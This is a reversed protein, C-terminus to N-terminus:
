AAVKFTLKFFYVPIKEVEAQKSEQLFVDSFKRSNKLNDVYAVVEANSFAYGEISLTGGSLTLSQLWVGNPLDKSIEDLMMAPINQNKRLQEILKNREEFTMNRKEYDDVEQIKKKLETITQNNHEVQAEANKLHSGFYLYLYALAFLLFVGIAAVALTLSSLPKARKKRKVPLLNIRIM